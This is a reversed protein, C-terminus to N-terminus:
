QTGERRRAIDGDGKGDGKLKGPDSSGDGKVNGHDGGANGKAIGWRGKGDTRAINGYRAEGNGPLEDRNWGAPKRGLYHNTWRITGKFKSYMLKPFTLGEGGPEVAEKHLAELVDGIDQVDGPFVTWARGVESPDHADSGGTMSRGLKRGLASARENYRNWSRGNMGEFMVHPLGEIDGQGVGNGVRFPHSLVPIGGHDKIFDLTEILSLSKRPSEDLGFALLHGDASSIEVGPILLISGTYRKLEMRSVLRDHDTIAVGDLERELARAVIMGLTLISDRSRISHCHLDIRVRNEQPSTLKLPVSIEPSVM